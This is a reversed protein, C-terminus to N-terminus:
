STENQDPGAKHRADADKYVAMSRSSCLRRHGPRARRHRFRLMADNMSMASSSARAAPPRPSTGIPQM